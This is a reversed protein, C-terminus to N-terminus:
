IASHVFLLTIAFYNSFSFTSDSLEVTICLGVVLFVFTKDIKRKADCIPSNM